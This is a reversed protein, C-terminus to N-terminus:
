WYTKTTKLEVPALARMAPFLAQTTGYLGRTLVPTCGDRENQPYTLNAERQYTKSSYTPCSFFFFFFAPSILSLILRRLCFTSSSYSLKYTQNSTIEVRTRPPPLILRGAGINERTRPISYLPPCTPTPRTLLPFYSDYSDGYREDGVVGGELCLSANKRRKDSISANKTTAQLPNPAIRTNRSLSIFRRCQQPKSRM